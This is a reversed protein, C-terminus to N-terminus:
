TLSWCVLLACRLAEAYCPCGGESELAFGFRDFQEREGNPVPSYSVSIGTM